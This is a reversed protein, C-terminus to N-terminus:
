RPMAKAGARSAKRRIIAAAIGRLLDIETATPAARNLLRRLRAMLRRPQAPDLYGLAILAQELHQLMRERQEVAAPPQQPWRSRAPAPDLLALRCEYAVVQVAQALNLSGYGPDSPIACCFQCREVDENALGTRETGFVFAVEAGAAALADRTRAAAARLDIPPPGFERATASMAFATHVGALAPALADFAAAARLVGAAGAAFAVAQPDDRFAAQRPAVVCLRDFGMVKLARAAAGVNGPHSPAVLVFRVRQARAALGADANM